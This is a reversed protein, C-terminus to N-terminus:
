YLSVSIMESTDKNNTTKSVQVKMGKGIDKLTIPKMEGSIRKDYLVIYIGTTAYNETSGDEKIVTLTEETIDSVVASFSSSNFVTPQTETPLGVNGTNRVKKQVTDQVLVSVPNMQFLIYSGALIIMIGIVGCGILIYKIKKDM